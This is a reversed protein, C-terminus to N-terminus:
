RSHTDTGSLRRSLVRTIGWWNRTVHRSWSLKLSGASKLRRNVFLTDGWAYKWMKITYFGLAELRTVVREVTAVPTLNMFDHFEITLQGVGKLLDDSTSDLVEIEAGEIDFKILDVSPLGAQKLFDDLRIADVEITRYKDATSTTLLTSAEPNTSLHLPLKGASGAIALNYVTLNPQPPINVCLEPNAEVAHCHCPFRKLIDRSFNGKNAGLDLVVSQRSLGPTWLTHGEIQTLFSM